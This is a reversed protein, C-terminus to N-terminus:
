GRVPMELSVGAAVQTLESLMAAVAPNDAAGARVAARTTRQLDLGDVRKFVVDPYERVLGLPPVFAVGLGVGVAALIVQFDNSHLDVHPQFGESEALRVVIDLFPTGDHGVIFQDDRLDSIRVSRAARPDDAPMALFVPETLLDRSEVSPDAPAPLVNFEHTLVVDLDGIRLAPLSQEPELDVMSVRIRPHDQRLRAVAPVLLVRAATPFAAVGLHGATGTSVAALEAEAQELAALVAPTRAVLREGAETLRVGRGVHELLPVGAERELTAMQQSVASPTLFLAAAAAAISGREAIERLIRLRPVSLM